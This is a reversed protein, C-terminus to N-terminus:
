RKEYPVSLVHRRVVVIAGGDLRTIRGSRRALNIAQALSKDPHAVDTRRKTGPKSQNNEWDSRWDKGCQGQCRFEQYPGGLRGGCRPCVWNVIASIDDATLRKRTATTNM